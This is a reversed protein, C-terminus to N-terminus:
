NVDQGKELKMVMEQMAKKNRDDPALTLAKKAHALATKYEGNASYGRTLGAITMFENPYKKHNAQFVNLAEKNKKETLLRRGYFHLDQMSGKELALALTSDAKKQENRMAYVDSLTRLTYFNSQYFVANRGWKLAEDPSTKHSVCFSAAEQNAQWTFGKEGRLDLRFSELSTKVLDVKVKFPIMTKEWMMAITAADEGQDIFEYKLWEVSKELPQPKVKVRLADEKEDYFYSGWSTSNTSFIVTSENADYAIFLGYKGAALKKGEIEVDTSFEITTNENAGARWPAKTGFGLDAFGSHVVETFIKGERGKVGPRDYHITIDTIGVQESVSAKKNGGSPPSKLYQASSAFSFLFSICTFIHKM